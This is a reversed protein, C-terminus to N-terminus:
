HSEPYVTEPQIGGRDRQQIAAKGLVEQPEVGPLRGCFASSRYFGGPYLRLRYVTRLQDAKSLQVRSEPVGPGTGVLVPIALAVVMLSSTGVLKGLFSPWSYQQILMKRVAKMVDGPYAGRPCQTSCDNCHHCLWVDPDNLLRDKMGWQAWIMEKRPYPNNDPAIRCAVSCTASQYCKKLDGAGAEILDRAFRLDPEAVFENAM